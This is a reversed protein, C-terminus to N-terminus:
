ANVAESELLSALNEVYSAIKSLREAVEESADSTPPSAANSEALATEAASVRKRLDHLEDAMMLSAFLLMRTETQGMAGSAIAKEDILSGLLEVHGEEGDASALTFSRGGISLTVNGM